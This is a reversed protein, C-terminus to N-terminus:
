IRDFCHCSKINLSSCLLIGKTLPHSDVSADIIDFDSAASKRDGDDNDVVVNVNVNDNNITAQQHERAEEPAM